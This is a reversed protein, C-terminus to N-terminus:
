IFRVEGEEKFAKNYRRADRELEQSLRESDFAAETYVINEDNM